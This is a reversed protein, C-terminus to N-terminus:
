LARGWQEWKDPDIVWSPIRSDRNLCYDVITHTAKLAQALRGPEIMPVNHAKCMNFFDRCEVWLMDAMKVRGNGPDKYGASTFYGMVLFKGCLSVFADSISRNQSSELDHNILKVGADLGDTDIENDNCWSSLINVTKEILNNGESKFGKSAAYSLFDIPLKALASALEESIIAASEGIYVWRTITRCGLLALHDMAIICNRAGSAKEINLRQLPADIKEPDIVMPLASKDENKLTTPIITKNFVPGSLKNIQAGMKSAMFRVDEFSEPAVGIGITSCNVKKAIANAMCCIVAAWALDSRDDSLAGKEFLTMDQNSLLETGPIAKQRSCPTVEGGEKIDFRAFEYEPGGGMNSPTTVEKVPPRLLMAVRTAVKSYKPTCEPIDLEGKICFSKLWRAFRNDLFDTSATFPVEEGNVKITGSYFHKSEMLTIKSITLIASCVLEDNHYIGDPREEYIEKGHTVKRTPLPSTEVPKDQPKSNTIVKDVWKESGMWSSEWAGPDEGVRVASHCTLISRAKSGVAVMTRGEDVLTRWSSSTRSRDEAPIIIAPMSGHAEVHSLALKVGNILDSMVVISKNTSRIAEELFVSGCEKDHTGWTKYSIHRVSVALEPETTDGIFTLTKIRGPMDFAPIVLVESWGEGILPRNVGGTIKGDTVSLAREVEAKHCFGILNSGIKDWNRGIKLNLRGAIVKHDALMNRSNEKCKDWFALLKHRLGVTRALYDNLRKDYNHVSTDLVSLAALMAIVDTLPAKLKLALLEIMDGSIGCSKCYFWQGTTSIDHYITLNNACAACPIEYPLAKNETRIGLIPM